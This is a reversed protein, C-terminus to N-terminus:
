TTLSTLALVKVHHAMESEKGEKILHLWDYVEQFNFVFHFRTKM